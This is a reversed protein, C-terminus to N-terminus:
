GALFTVFINCGECKKLILHFIKETLPPRYSNFDLRFRSECYIKLHYSVKPFVPGSFGFPTFLIFYQYHSDMATTLNYYYCFWM